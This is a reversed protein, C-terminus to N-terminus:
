TTKGVLDHFDMLYQRFYSKQSEEEERGEEGKHRLITVRAHADDDLGTVLYTSILENLDFNIIGISQSHFIFNTQHSFWSFGDMKPSILIKMDIHGGSILSLTHM